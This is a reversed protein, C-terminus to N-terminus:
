DAFFLFRFLLPLFIFCDTESFGRFGSTELCKLTFYYWWGIFSKKDISPLVKPVFCCNSVFHLWRDNGTQLTCGGNAPHVWIIEMYSLVIM